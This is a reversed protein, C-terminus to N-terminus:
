HSLKITFNLMSENSSSQIDISQYKDPLKKLTSYIITNQFDPMQTLHNLNIHSALCKTEDSLDSQIAPADSLTIVQNAQTWASDTSIVLMGGSYGAHLINQQYKMRAHLIDNDQEITAMNEPVFRKLVNVKNFFSDANKTNKFPIYIAIKQKLLSDTFSLQKDTLENNDESYLAIWWAGINYIIQQSVDLGIIKQTLKTKVNTYTNRTEEPLLPLLISELEENHTFLRFTSVPNSSLIAQAHKANTGSLLSSIYIGRPINQYTDDQYRAVLNVEPGKEPLVLNLTISSIWETITQRIDKPVQSLLTSHSNLWISVPSDNTTQIIKEANPGLKHQSVIAKATTLSPASEPLIKPGMVLLVPEDPTIVMTCFDKHLVTIEIFTHNDEVSEHYTPRGYEENILNDMWKKFLNNDLTDLVFFLNDDRYGAVLGSATNMGADYYDKLKGINLLYHKGLDNLTNKLDNSDVIQYKDFSAILETINGYSTFALMQADDPISNSLKQLIPGSTKPYNTPMEARKEIVPKHSSSCSIFTSGTLGIILALPIFHFFHKMISPHHTM